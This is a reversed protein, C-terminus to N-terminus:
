EYAKIKELGDVPVMGSLSNWVLGKVQWITDADSVVYSVSANIEGTQGSPINVDETDIGVLKGTVDYIALILTYDAATGDNGKIDLEFKITNGNSIAELPDTGNLLATSISYPFEYEVSMNDFYLDGGGPAYIAFQMVTEKGNIPFRVKNWGNRVKLTYTNGEWTIVAEAGTDNYVDICLESATVGEYYPIVMGLWNGAYMYSNRIANTNKTKGADTVNVRMSGSGEKIYDPNTNLYLNYYNAGDILDNPGYWNNIDDFSEMPCNMDEYVVRVNDIYIENTEVNQKDSSNFDARWSLYDFVYGNTIDFSVENWGNTLTREAGKVFQRQTAEGAFSSGQPTLIKDNAIKARYDIFLYNTAIDDNVYVDMLLKKAILGETAGPINKNIRLLVKNNGNARAAANDVVCKLAAGGQTCVGDEAQSVTLINENWSSFGGKDGEFGIWLQEDSIAESEEIKRYNVRLDDFYIDGASQTTINFAFLATKGNLPFEVKRWGQVGIAAGDAVMNTDLFFLSIKNGTDNYVWMSFSEPTYGEINPILKGGFTGDKWGNFLVSRFATTNAAKTATVKLSGSGEKIYDLDTNQSLNFINAGDISDNPGYWDDNYKDFSDMVGNVDQYVIRVNDLYIVTEDYAEKEASNFEGVWQIDSIRTANTIDFSVTNWGDELVRRACRVVQSEVSSGSNWGGAVAVSGKTGNEGVYNLFLANGVAADEAYVDMVLAKVAKGEEPAAVDKYFSISARRISNTRAVAHDVTCKLSGEGENIYDPEDNWEVSMYNDNWSTVYDTGNNFGFWFTGGEPNPESAKVTMVSTLLSICLITNLIKKSKM